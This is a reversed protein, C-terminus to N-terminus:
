VVRNSADCYDEVTPVACLEIRDSFDREIMHLM